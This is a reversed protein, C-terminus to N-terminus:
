SVFSPMYILEFYDFRACSFIFAFVAKCWKKLLFSFSFLTTLVQFNSFSVLLLDLSIVVFCITYKSRNVTLFYIDGLYQGCPVRAGFVSNGQKIVGRHIYKKSEFRAKCGWPFIGHYASSSIQRQFSLWTNFILCSQRSKCWSELGGLRLELGNGQVWSDHSM